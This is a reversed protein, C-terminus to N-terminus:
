VPKHRQPIEFTVQIVGGEGVDGGVEVPWRYHHSFDLSTHLAPPLKGTGSPTVGREEGRGMYRESGKYETLEGENDRDTSTVPTVNAHSSAPKLM